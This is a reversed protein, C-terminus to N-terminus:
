RSVEVKNKENNLKAQYEDFQRKILTELQELTGDQICSRIKAFFKLYYHTNHITLLLPGLLEQVTILHYIYGRSHKTCALCDCSPVIPRFDNSYQPHRLNIEFIQNEDTEDMGFALASSRETVIYSYSTDFIDIGLQVLKIVNVPNWCGQISKFKEKPLNKVVFDVVKDVEDIPLFEVEPGNNHLGDILYGGIYEDKDLIGEICKQRSNLCYGGSISGILCTDKLIDSKQHRELCENFFNLTNDVAKSIRKNLSGVNTDGDSLTYYMDPQFSEIIDMYKGANVLIKGHRTWVPVHDKYHHGPQTLDGPDQVTVCSVCDKLGVFQSINENQESLIEQYQYTSAIPIQLIQPTKSCIKFIEHTIHPISGGKTYLMALPTEISFNPKNAFETLLGLRSTSKTTAKLVFKM